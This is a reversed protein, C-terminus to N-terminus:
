IGCAEGRKKYECKDKLNCISCTKRKVEMTKGFGIICLVSKCPTLTFSSTSCLGIEKQTNMVKLMDPMIEIPLDGYGIGYRTTIDSIHENEKIYKEVKDCIQEIAVTAFADTILAKTMDLISLRKILKDVEVSLTAAIIAIRDIGKLHNKISDGTLLINSNELLIGEETEMINFCKYLFRPVASRILQEECEQMILLIDDTPTEGKYGLYRACEDYDLKTLEVNKM